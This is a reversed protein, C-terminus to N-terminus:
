LEPVIPERKRVSNVPLLRKQTPSTMISIFDPNQGPEVIGEIIEGTATTIRTDPMFKEHLRIKQQLTKKSEVSLRKRWEGYGLKVIRVDHEGESINGIRLFDSTAADAPETVGRKKGDIWVTAGSPRTQFEFVGMVNELRFEEVAEKGNAVVVDRTMTAYGELEARVKYTGPAIGKKVCTEGTPLPLDDMYFRAGAPVSTFMVSGPVPEMKVFLEQTDGAAVRLERKETKYGDKRLEVTVLGKVVDISTVPSAGSSIGNVLVEAGAPETKVSVTGSDKVLKVHQVLPRRGDLRVSLKSDLYGAKKVVLTHPDKADLTVLLRPTTGLSYGNEFVEAGAPETSVLLIGRVPELAYDRRVSESAAFKLIEDVTEHDRYEIRVHHPTDATLDALQLPTTGRREGDVHVSAGSPTSLFEVFATAAGAPASLFVAAFAALAAARLSTRLREIRM